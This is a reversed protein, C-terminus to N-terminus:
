KQTARLVNAYSLLTMKLLHRMSEQTQDMQSMMFECAEPTTVPATEFRSSNVARVEDVLKFLVNVDKQPMYNQALAMNTVGALSDKMTGGVSEDWRKFRDQLDKAMDKNNDVCAQVAGGVDKSVAKVMSYMTYNKYMTLFHTAEDQSLTPMINTVIGKLADSQAKHLAESTTETRPAVEEARVETLCGFSIAFLSLLATVRLLM